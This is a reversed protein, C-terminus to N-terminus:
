LVEEDKAFPSPKMQPHRLRYRQDAVVERPEFEGEGKVPLEGQLLRAYLEDFAADIEDYEEPDLFVHDAM